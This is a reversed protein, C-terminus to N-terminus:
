GGYRIYVVIGYVVHLGGFSLGMELWTWETLFAASVLGAALFAAGLLRVERPSFDGLSWLALGYCIMWIPPILCGQTFADISAVEAGWRWRAVIIAALGAGGVFPPVITRLIRAKVGSWWPMGQKRERIRTLVLVSTLSM